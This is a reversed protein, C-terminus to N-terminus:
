HWEALGLYMAMLQEIISNRERPNHTVCDCINEESFYFTM